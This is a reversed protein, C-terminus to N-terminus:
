RPQRKGGRYINMLRQKFAHSDYDIGKGVKIRSEARRLSARLEAMEKESLVPIEEMTTVPVMTTNPRKRKAGPKSAMRAIYRLVWFKIVGDRVVRRQAATGLGPM